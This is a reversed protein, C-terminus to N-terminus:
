RCRRRHDTSKPSDTTCAASPFSSAVVALIVALTYNINPPEAASAARMCEPLYDALLSSPRFRRPIVTCLSIVLTALRNSNDSASVFVPRFVILREPPSSCFLVPGAVIQKRHSGNCAVDADTRM